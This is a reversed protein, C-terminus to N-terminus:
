KNSKSLLDNKLEYHYSPIPNNIYKFSDPKNKNVYNHKNVLCNKNNTEKDLM